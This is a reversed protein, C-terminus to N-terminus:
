PTVTVTGQKRVHAWDYGGWRLAKAERGIEEEDHTGRVDVAVPQFGDRALHGAGKGIGFATPEVFATGQGTILAAALIWRQLFVPRPM